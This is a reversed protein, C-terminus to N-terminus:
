VLYVATDSYFYWHSRKNSVSLRQYCREAAKEKRSVYWKELEYSLTNEHSRCQIKVLLPMLAILDFGKSTLL